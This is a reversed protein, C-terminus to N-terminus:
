IYRGDVKCLQAGDFTTAMSNGGSRDKIAGDIVAVMEAPALQDKMDAAMEVALRSAVEGDPRGGVGDAVTVFASSTFYNDENHEREGRHSAAAASLVLKEVAGQPTRLVLVVERGIGIRDGSELAVAAGPAASVGNVFTGNGTERSRLHWRGDRYLLTFHRRSVTTADVLVDSEPSRGVEVVDKTLLVDVLPGTTSRLSATPPREARQVLDPPGAQDFLVVERSLEARTPEVPKCKLLRPEVPPTDIMVTPPEHGTRVEVVERGSRQVGEHEESVVTHGCRCPEAPRRALYREVLFPVLRRVIMMNVALVLLLLLLFGVVEKM